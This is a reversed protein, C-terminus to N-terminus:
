TRKRAQSFGLAHYGNQVEPENALYTCVEEVQEDVPMFYSNAIEEEPTEGIQLSHIFTGPETNEAIIDM